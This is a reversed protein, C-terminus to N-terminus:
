CNSVFNIGVYIYRNQFVKHYSFKINRDYKKDNGRNKVM